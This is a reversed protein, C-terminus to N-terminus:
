TAAVLFPGRIGDCLVILVGSNSNVVTTPLTIVAIYERRYQNKEWIEELIKFSVLSLKIIFFMLNSEEKM